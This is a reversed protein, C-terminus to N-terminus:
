APGHAEPAPGKARREALLEVARDLELNEADDGRRLSANTEGDTVYPGFRGDKVVISKGSIPDAGLEQLPAAAQGQGRRAGEAARPRGAGRRAHAVAAAGRDRALAVGQGEPRVARLPREARRDGRRGRRRRRRAPAVAAPARGRADGDGPSMSKFLSATRPKEKSEEPLVETVYPGYRGTRAVIEHGSEPDAGLPRDGSPASSCSRRARRRHARRPRHGGARRASDAASSTRATAASASCSTGRRDRDLQGRPRRNRRPRHRAAAAGRRRARRLLLPRAVRGAGRRGRRDPRPRGGDAGHLRLRRAARLAARAARRRRVRPLDPRAGHGEQLRLRPRPDHRPDVRLDVAPRHRARRDHKM